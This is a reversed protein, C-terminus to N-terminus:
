DEPYYGVLSGSDCSVSCAWSGIERLAFTGGDAFAGRVTLADTGGPVFWALDDAGDGDLDSVAIDSLGVAEAHDVTGWPAGDVAFGSDAYRVLNIADADGDAVFALEDTGDGDFDGPALRWPADSLGARSLAKEQDDFSLNGARLFTLEWLDDDRDPDSFSGQRVVALDDASDGDFDGPV